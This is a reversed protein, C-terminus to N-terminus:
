NESECEVYQHKHSGAESLQYVSYSHLTGIQQVRFLLQDNTLQSGRSSQQYGALTELAQLDSIGSIRKKENTSLTQRSSPNDKTSLRATSQITSLTRTSILDAQRLYQRYPGFQHILFLIAMCSVFDALTM